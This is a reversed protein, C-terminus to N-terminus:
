VGNINNENLFKELEKFKENIEEINKKLYYFEKKYLRLLFNLNDPYYKLVYSYENITIAHELVFESWTNITCSLSCLKEFDIKNNPLSSIFKRLPEGGGGNAEVFNKCEQFMDLSDM